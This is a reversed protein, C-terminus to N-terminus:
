MQCKSTYGMALSAVQQDRITHTSDRSFAILRQEVYSPDYFLLHLIQLLSYLSLDPVSHLKDMSSHEKEGNVGENKEEEEEGDYEEEEEEEADEHVDEEEEEEEEERIEEVFEGSEFVPTTERFNLYLCNTM